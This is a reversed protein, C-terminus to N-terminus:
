QNMSLPSPEALTTFGGAGNPLRGISQDAEMTDFSVTDLLVNQNADTDYLWLTEGKSSLKFNAHLGPDDNGDEDAWILIYDGPQIITGDPIQWKLPNEPNDSLYMGSLDITQDGTNYLEIWDDYEGQPDALTTSNLAMLENIVVDSAEAQAYTVVYSYVDHEAGEPSFAITGVSDDATAQVYYLL